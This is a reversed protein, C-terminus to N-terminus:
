LATPHFSWAKDMSFRFQGRGPYGTGALIAPGYYLVICVGLAVGGCGGSLLRPWRGVDERCDMWFRADVWSRPPLRMISDLHGTMDM